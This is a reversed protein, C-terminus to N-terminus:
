TGNNAAVEEVSEGNDLRVYIRSLFDLLRSNAATPHGAKAEHNFKQAEQFARFRREAFAPIRELRNIELDDIMYTDAFNGSVERGMVGAAVIASVERILTDLKQL